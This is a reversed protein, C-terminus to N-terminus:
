PMRALARLVTVRATVMAVLASAVPLMALAAVAVPTVVLRPVLPSEVGATFHWVPALTLAALGVGLLGGRLGLSLAQRAFVHAVFADHAGILHLVEVVEHHVALSTKTTFVVTGVAAAGVALVVALAVAQLSRAAAALRDLWLRHDDIEAGPVAAKLRTELARLDPTAGPTLTVDILRPLPLDPAVNGAGLWPELLAVLENRPLPRAAAVGPAGRLADLAAAVRAETTQADAPPVQVTLTASRESQWRGLASDLTLAGALGLAALYVMLAVIWPLFRNAATNKLPLAPRGSPM